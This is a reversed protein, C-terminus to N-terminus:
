EGPNEPEAGAEYSNQNLAFSIINEGWENATRIEERRAPGSRREGQWTCGYDHESLIIGKGVLLRPNEDDDFGAPPQGFLHPQSLLPHGHRVEELEIGFSEALSSYAASVAAIDSGRRCCDMFVMGGNGIYTYLHNMQERSFQFSNKAAMYVLDYRELDENLEIRDDVWVSKGSNRLARALWVTGHGDSHDTSGDPYSVGICTHFGTKYEAGNLITRFRLDIENWGPFEPLNANTVPAGRRRRLRALVIGGHGEPQEKVEVSFEARVYAPGNPSDQAPRSEGYTLILYLFNSSQGLDYAVPETVTIIEGCRDIALGPTIYISSDPPDSAIVSLGDVIGAGHLLQNHYRMHRRHYEHAEEWVQATVALGDMPKIRKGPYELLDKKDIM